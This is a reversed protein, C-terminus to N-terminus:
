PTAQDSATRGQNILAFMAAWSPAALSTGGVVEFSNDASLNYTDAVWAGTQPDAVFSVDPTTRFGTSQAGHQYAPETEFQSVGGGSGVPSGDASEGTAGVRKM